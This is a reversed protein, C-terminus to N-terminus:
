GPSFIRLIMFFFFGTLFFSSIGTILNRLGPNLSFRIWQIDQMAVSLLRKSDVQDHFAMSKDQLVEFFEQRADREWSLVVVAWSYGVIFYLVFYIAAIGILLYFLNIFQPGFGYNKLVDIAEGVIVSPVTILFTTFITLLTAGTIIFPHRKLGSAMYEAGTKYKTKTM